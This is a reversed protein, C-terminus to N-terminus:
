CAYYTVKIGRRLKCVCSDGKSKMARAITKNAMEVGIILILGSVGVLTDVKKGSETYGYVKIKFNSNVEKKTYNFKAAKM